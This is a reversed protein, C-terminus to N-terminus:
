IMFISNIKSNITYRLSGYLLGIFIIFLIVINMMITWYKIKDSIDRLNLSLKFISLLKESEGTEFERYSSYGIWSVDTGNDQRNILTM